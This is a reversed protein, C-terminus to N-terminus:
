SKKTKLKKSYESWDSLNDLLNKWLNSQQDMWGAISEGNMVYRNSKSSGLLDAMPELSSLMESVKLWGGVARYGNKVLPDDLPREIGNVYLAEKNFNELRKKQYQESHSSTKTTVDVFEIDISFALTDAIDMKKTSSDLFEYQQTWKWLKWERSLKDVVWYIENFWEEISYIRKGGVSFNTNVAPVACFKILFIPWLWPTKEPNFVPSKIEWCACKLMCSAKQDIRLWECSKWCNKIQEATEDLDSPTTSDIMNNINWVNQQIEKEKDESLELYDDVAGLMYDIIEQYEEDSLDSFNPIDWTNQENEKELIEQETESDNQDECLSSYFEIGKNELKLANLWEVLDDFWWNKEYAFPLARIDNSYWWGEETKIDQDLENWWILSIREWWNKSNLSWGEDMTYIWESGPIKGWWDSSKFDPQSNGNKNDVLNKNSNSFIPIKYMIPTIPSEVGYYLIKSFIDLDAMIDYPSDDTTNNWYKDAWVQAVEVTQLIEKNIKGKEYNITFFEKCSTEVDKPKSATMKTDTIKNWKWEYVCEDYKKREAECCSVIRGFKAVTGTCDSKCEDYKKRENECITAVYNVADLKEAQECLYYKGCYEAIKGGTFVYKSSDYDWYEQKLSMALETRFEPVFYYLIGWIEKKSMNCWMQNLLQEIRQAWAVKLQKSRWEVVSMADGFPDKSFKSSYIASFDEDSSDQDFYGQFKSVIKEALDFWIVQNKGCFFAVFVIILV